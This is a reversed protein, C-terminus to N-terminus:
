GNLDINNGETNKWLGATTGLGGVLGEVAAQTDAVAQIGGEEAPALNEYLALGDKDGGTWSLDSGEQMRQVLDSMSTSLGSLQTIVGLLAPLDVNTADSESM